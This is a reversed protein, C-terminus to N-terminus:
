DIENPTALTPNQSVRETTTATISSLVLETYFFRTQNIYSLTVMSSILNLNINLNLSQHIYTRYLFAITTATFASYM